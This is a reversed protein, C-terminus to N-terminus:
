RAAAAEDTSKCAILTALKALGKATVRVQEVLRRTGNRREITDVKHTLLGQDIKDRYGQWEADGGRRYIWRLKELRGVLDVRTIGLAKSSETLNLSGDAETLLALARSQPELEAVREHARSAAEVSDAALRLAAAFDAPLAPTATRFQAKFYARVLQRQVQWALEDTFAKVLMLYGSETLMIGRATRPGFHGAQSQRRLEDGTLEHFDEGQVFRERHERFNRGATGDPRAHVRDVMAFTILREGAREIVPVSLGAVIVPPTTLLESM